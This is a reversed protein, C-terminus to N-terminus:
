RHTLSFASFLVSCLLLTFRSSSSPTSSLSWLHWCTSISSFFFPSLPSPPLPCVTLVPVLMRELEVPYPQVKTGLKASFPFAVTRSILPPVPNQSPHLKYLKPLGALSFCYLIILMFNIISTFM